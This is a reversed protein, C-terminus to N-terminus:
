GVKAKGGQIRRIRQQWYKTEKERKPRFPTCSGDTRMLGEKIAEKPQPAKRILRANSKPAKAGGKIKKRKSEKAEQGHHSPRPRM